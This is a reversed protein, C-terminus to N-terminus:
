PTRFQFVPSESTNGAADATVVKWYYYTNPNVAVNAIETQTVHGLLSTPASATGFYVDYGNIDGDIDDATWRLTVTSGSVTASMPPAVLDAPFPAYHSVPDGANYFKWTASATTKSSGERGAVVYWSYPTGKNLNVELSTADGTPYQLITQSSLNKVYLSYRDANAAANWEFAVRSQTPSVSQGTQCESNALPYVLAPAEPLDGGGNGDGGSGCAFLLTFGFVPLWKKLTNM